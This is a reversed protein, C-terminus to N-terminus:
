MLGSLGQGYKGFKKEKDKDVKSSADNFAVMVMDELLEFDDAEIAEDFKVSMVKKEGNMVVKVLSSVGEYSTNKLEEQEKQLNKQMKQAERMISQLNM